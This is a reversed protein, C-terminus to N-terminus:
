QKLEMLKKIRERTSPHSMFISFKDEETRGFPFLVSMLRRTPISIKYLASALGEPDHTLEAAVLDAGFERTRQLALSVLNSIIPLSLLFLPFFMVLPNYSFLWFPTFLVILWGLQAVFSTFEQLMFAFRFLRLDRNKIHAIEHAIVGALERPNLNAILASTLVIRPNEETGLTMANLMQSPMMYLEPMKNLGAEQAIDGTIDWTHPYDWRSIRIAEFPLMNTISEVRLLAYIAFSSLVLLVGVGGLVTRAAMYTLLILLALWFMTKGMLIFKERLINDRNM